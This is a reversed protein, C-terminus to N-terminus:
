PQVAKKDSKDTGESKDKDKDKSGDKDRDKDSGKSKRNLLYRVFYNSAICLILAGQILSIMESSVGVRAQMTLSGTRLASFLISGVVSVLASGGSLLAIPIGDFGFGPSFDVYLHYHTGLIELGGGIGALAGSLFLGRLKLKNANIGAYRAADANLGVARIEYGATSRRFFLELLIAAIIVFFFAISLRHPPGIFFPLQASALIRETSPIIANASAFADLVFYQLLFAAISNTLLLVVLLNVGRKIHLLAPILVFLMGGLAAAALALPIHLFAPLGRIYIGALTATFAGMLLQGEAGINFVNAKISVLVAFSAFAIPVSLRITNVFGSTSGFAGAFLAQYARLPNNGMALLWIASFLFSILIIIIPTFASKLNGKRWIRLAASLAKEKM